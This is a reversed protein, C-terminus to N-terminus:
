TEGSFLLYFQTNIFADLSQEHRPTHLLATGGTCHTKTSWFSTRARTSLLRKRSGQPSTKTQQGCVTGQAKHLRHGKTYGICGPHHGVSGLTCCPQGTAQTSILPEQVASLHRPWSSRQSYGPFMSPPPPRSQESLDRHQCLKSCPIDSCFVLFPPWQTEAESLSGATLVARATRSIRHLSCNPFSLPCGSTLGCSSSEASGM